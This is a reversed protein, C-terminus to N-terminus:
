TNYQHRQGHHPLEMIEIHHPHRHRFVVQLEVYQQQQITLSSAMRRQENFKAKIPKKLQYISLLIGYIYHEAASYLPHPLKPIPRWPKSALYHVKPTIGASMRGYFIVIKTYETPEAM